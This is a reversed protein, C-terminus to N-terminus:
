HEQESATVTDRLDKLSWDTLLSSYTPIINSM